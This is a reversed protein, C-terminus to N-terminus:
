FGNGNLICWMWKFLAETAKRMHTEHDDALQRWGIVPQAYALKRIPKHSGKPHIYPYYKILIM